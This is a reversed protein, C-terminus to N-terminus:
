QCAYVYQRVFSILDSRGSLTVNVKISTPLGESDVIYEYSYDRVYRKGLRNSYTVTYRTPMKNGLYLYYGQLPSLDDILAYYSSPTNGYELTSQTHRYYNTDSPFGQSYSSNIQTIRGGQVVFDQKSTEYVTGETFLTKAIRNRKQLPLGSSTYTYWTTDKAEFWMSVDNIIGYSPYSESTQVIRGDRLTGHSPDGSENSGIYTKVTVENGVYTFEYSFSRGSQLRLLPLNIRTLRGQADYIFEHLPVGIGADIEWALKCPTSLPNILISSVPVPDNSPNCAALAVCLVCAWFGIFQGRGFQYTSM